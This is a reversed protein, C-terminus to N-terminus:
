KPQYYIKLWDPYKSSEYQLKGDRLEAMLEFEESNDLLYATNTLSATKAFLGLSRFYREKIKEEDVAHGGQKVRLRVREINLQWNDTCVFYLYTKYGIKNAMELLTLKSPHSLVTEFCFSQKTEILKEALYTAIFSAIYSNLENRKFKAELVGSQIRLLHVFKRDSIKKLIGSQKIHKKFDEDSVKVRYANFNFQHRQALKREIDDANVYIETHIYSKSRLFNFLRTKGSGNPGAFLRFRPLM